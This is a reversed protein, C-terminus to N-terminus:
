RRRHPLLPDIQASLTALDVEGSIPKNAGVIFTPTSDIKQKTVADNVRANLADLAPKSNLCADVQAPTLGVSAAIRDFPGKIDRTQYIEAQAHFVAEVVSWYKAEGACRALLFGAAALQEPETLFERFVYRVKGTDVYKAKLAPFVNIDFRACHPCSASAYEIVTVKARRSGMVYEPAAFMPPAAISAAAPAAPPKAAPQAAAAGACIALALTTMAVGIARVGPARQPNPLM